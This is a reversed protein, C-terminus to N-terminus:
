DGDRKTAEPAFGENMVALLAELDTEIQEGATAAATRAKRANALIEGVKSSLAPQRAVVLTAAYDVIAPTEAAMRQTASMALSRRAARLREIEEVTAPFPSGLFKTAAETRMADALQALAKDPRLSATAGAGSRGYNAALASAMRAIESSAADVAHLRGDELSLLREILLVRAESLWDAGAVNSGVLGSVLEKADSSPTSDALADLVARLVERGKTYRSVLTSSVAARVDPQNSRLAENAVLRADIPGLDASGPRAALSRILDIRATQDRGAAQWQAAFEGDGVGAAPLGARDGSPSANWEKAERTIISDLDEFADKIRKDDPDEFMRGLRAAALAAAANRLRDALDATPLANVADVEKKWEVLRSNEVLVAEGISTSGVTPFKAVVRRALDRRAADDANTALVLDPGYWAIAFDADLLSTFVWLRSPQITADTLWGEVSARVVAADAGRGTFDLMHIAYALFDVLPGPRDLVGPSRLVADIASVAARSRFVPITAAAEVAQAWRGADDLGTIVGIAMDDALAKADIALVTTAGSAFPDAVEGRPIPLSRSRMEERAAAATEPPQGADLAITTLVGAGFSGRWMRQWRALGVRNVDATTGPIAQMLRRTADSGRTARALGGISRLLDSRYSSAAPWADAARALTDNILRLTADDIQGKESRVVRMADEIDAIWAAGGSASEVIAVSMAAPVFGPARPYKVPAALAALPGTSVGNADVPAAVNAGILPTAGTLPAVIPAGALEPALPKTPSFFLWGLAGLWSLAVAGFIIALRAQSSTSGSNVEHRIVDNIRGLVREVAGEAVDSASKSARVSLLKSSAHTGVEHFSGRLGEGEAIFRTLGQVIRQLDDVEVGYESAAAALRMASTANWGGNVVLLALALRDFDTLDDATLGTGRPQVANPAIVTVGTRATPSTQEVVRKAARRAATPHLPGKGELLLAAQLRDAAYELQMILRRAESTNSLPHRAIEDVRRELAAEISGSKLVADAAIALLTREDANAAVGLLRRMASIDGHSSM